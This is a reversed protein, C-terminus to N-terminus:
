LLVIQTCARFPIFFLSRLKRFKKKWKRNNKKRPNINDNKITRCWDIRNETVFYHSKCQFEFNGISPRLTISEGDFLLKWYSRSLPTVVKEGCGCACLHVTTAYKMSIYLVGPELDAPIYEVFKPVLSNIKTNSM